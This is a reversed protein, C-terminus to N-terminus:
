FQIKEHSGGSRRNQKDPDQGKSAADRHLPIRWHRDAVLREGNRVIQRLHLRAMERNIAAPPSRPM